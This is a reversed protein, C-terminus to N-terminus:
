KEGAESSNHCRPPEAQPPLNGEPPPVGRELGAQLLRAQEDGADECLMLRDKVLGDLTRIVESHYRGFSPYREEVSSRPDGSAIREAKTRAFPIM